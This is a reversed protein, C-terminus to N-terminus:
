GLSVANAALDLVEQTTKGESPLANLVKGADAGGADEFM